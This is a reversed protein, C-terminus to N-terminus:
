LPFEFVLSIERGRNPVGEPLSVGQAPTAYDLNAINKIQLSLNYDHEFRYRLKSNIIWFDDLRNKSNGAGLAYREGQFYGLLNWNWPGQNFNIEASALQDAERFASSPLRLFDTYTARLSWHQTLSQRVSFALGHSTEDVPSNVFTRTTGIAGAVIGDKYDNHFAGVSYATNNWHGMWILDWTKVVEYNLNPNGVILPNNLVGTESLSPARFAEGYLLKLTQQETLQHVVGLRPSFHGGFDTYKDYRAGMTLGTNEGLNRQYQGFVGAAEFSDMRGLPTVHAFDGYYNIPFERRVLQGLDYNNEISATTEEEKKWEVGILANAKDALKWDNTVRLNYSEGTLLGHTLLPENSSPQSIAALAGVGAVTVNLHQDNRLYGLYVRTNVDDWVHVGQEISFQKLSINTSNFDDNTNEITYFDEGATNHYALHIQTEDHKIGLDFDITERPDYTNFPVKTFTNKIRYSQGDDRYFRAYLNATWDGLPKALMVRASRRNDSGLEVRASNQDSRTIINIIGSFASSGYIASGPGRIIEVREIQELPIYPLSVDTSGTRPTALMRGDMVVLIERAQSGNRRGRSSMTYNNANDAGRDFQFSTVLGILEYLYDMGLKELQDHTFLTVAAPVTKLSEDRLTAGTVPIQLLQEIDMDLYVSDAAFVKACLIQACACLMACALRHKRFCKRKIFM